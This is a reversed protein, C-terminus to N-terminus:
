QGLALGINIISSTFVNRWCYLNATGLMDNLITALILTFM